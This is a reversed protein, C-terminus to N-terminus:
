QALVNSSAFVDSGTKNTIVVNVQPTKIRSVIKNIYNETEKPVHQEWGAKNQAIDKDLSGPGWNYAALAKRLDGKYKRSLFGMYQGAGLAESGFDGRKVHYEAATKPIFQFDGYASNPDGPKAFGANQGKNSEQQWVSALTGPPLNNQADLQRLWSEIQPTDKTPKRGWSKASQKIDTWLSYNAPKNQHIKYDPKPSADTSNGLLRNILHTVSMVASGFDKINQLTQPSGLEQAFAKIGNAFDNIDKQTIGNILAEFDKEFTATLGGLSTGLSHLKNILVTEIQQGALQLQRTFKYWESVNKDPVALRAADSAYQNRASKLESLPTNGLRRVDEMTYGIQSLGTAALAQESRMSVPTKNWWEHARMATKIALQDVSMAGAQDYGVGAAMALYARKQLNGQAGAINGLLGSPAYRGFDVGFARVQGQNLGLGRGQRQGAVASRGLADLGFLGAGGLGIGLAGTKMLYKGIGFISKGLREANDAMTKMTKNASFASIGFNKQSSLAKDLANGLKVAHDVSKKAEKALEAFANASQKSSKANSDWLEPTAELGAQYKQFQEYFAKFQTDNVEIDIISKTAM